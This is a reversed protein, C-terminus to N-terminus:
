RTTANTTPVVGHTTCCLHLDWSTVTQAQANMVQIESRLTQNETQKTTRGKVPATKAQIRRGGTPKATTSRAPRGGTPWDRITKEWGGGMTQGPTPSEKAGQRQREKM